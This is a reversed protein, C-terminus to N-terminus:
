ETMGAAHFAQARTTFARMRTISGERVDHVWFAKAALPAGSGKGQGHMEIVGVVVGDGADVFEVPDQVFDGWMERFHREIEIVGERGKYVSRDPLEPFDELVCDEAFFGAAAPVGDTIVAEWARRVTELHERSV